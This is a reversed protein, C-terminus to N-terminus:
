ALDFLRVDEVQCFYRTRFLESLCVVRAGRRAADGISAVAKSLNQAPDETCSMQVLGVKLERTAITSAMLRISALPRFRRLLM